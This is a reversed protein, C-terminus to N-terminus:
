RSLSPSPRSAGGPGTPSLTSSGQGNSPVLSSPGASFPTSNAPGASSQGPSTAIMDPVSSPANTSAIPPTMAPVPADTLVGSPAPGTAATGAQPMQAFSAAPASALSLAVILTKLAAEQEPHLVRPASRREEVRGSRSRRSFQDAGVLGHHGLSLKNQYRLLIATYPCTSRIGTEEFFGVISACPIAHRAIAARPNSSALLARPLPHRKAQRTHGWRSFSPPPKMRSTMPAADPTVRGGLM